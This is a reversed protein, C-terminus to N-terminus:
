PFQGEQPPGSVNSSPASFTIAVKIGALCSVRESMVPFPGAARVAKVVSAALKPDNSGVPELDVISGDHNLSLKIVVKHNPTVDAPPIWQKVM